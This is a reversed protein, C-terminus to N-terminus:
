QLRGLTRYAASRTAAFAVLAALPPILFPLLWGAGTFGLGTLFSADAGAGPLLAVSAM